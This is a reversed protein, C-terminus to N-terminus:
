SSLSKAGLCVCGRAKRNDERVPLVNEEEGAKRTKSM